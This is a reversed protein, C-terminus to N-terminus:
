LWECDGFHLATAAELVTQLLPLEHLAGGVMADAFLGAVRPHLPAWEASAAHRAEGVGFSLLGIVQPGAM